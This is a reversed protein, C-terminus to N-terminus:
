KAGVAGGYEECGAWFACNKRSCLFSNRNPTYLGARMAEQALPYLVQTARVDAENVDFTQEVLQVTKTKVLTDVKGVGSAGPALQRYTAVQMRHGFRVGVPNKKATKIDIIAGSVDM